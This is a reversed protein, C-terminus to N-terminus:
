RFMEINTRTNQFKSLEVFRMIVANKPWIDTIKQFIKTSVNIKVNSTKVCYKSQFRCMLVKSFQHSRLKIM